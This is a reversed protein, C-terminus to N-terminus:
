GRLDFTSFPFFLESTSSRSFSSSCRFCRPRPAPRSSRRSSRSRPRRRLRTRTPSLTQRPLDHIELALAVRRRGSLPASVLSWFEGGFFQRAYEVPDETFMEIEDETLCVLPFIFHEILTSLHPKLLAFMPKPGISNAPSPPRTLARWNQLPRRFLRVCWEEFFCLLHYQGKRPFWGGACVREVVGLYAKFIEPAFQGVFREAFAGYQEHLNKALLTPCGYRSYLRNLTWCAWKKARAWPHKERLDADDDGLLQLDLPHHVVALLLTGWPVLSEASQHAPTLTHIISNKYAKLAFRLLTGQRAVAAATAPAKAPNLTQQAIPLLLPLLHTTLDALIEGTEDRASYSFRPPAPRAPRRVATLLAPRLFSPRSSCPSPIWASPPATHALRDLRLSGRSSARSASADRSFAGHSSATRSCRLFSRRSYARSSLRSSQASSHSPPSSPDARSSRRAPPLRLAVPRSHAPRCAICLNSALTLPPLRVVLNSAPPAFTLRVVLTLM